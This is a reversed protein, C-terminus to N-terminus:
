GIAPCPNFRPKLSAAKEIEGPHANRVDPWRQWDRGAIVAHAEDWRRRGDERGAELMGEIDLDGRRCADVREGAKTLLHDSWRGGVRWFDWKANPNTLEGIRGKHVEDYGLRRAAFVEISGQYKPDDRQPRAAKALGTAAIEADSMLVKKRYGRGDGWDIYRYAIGDVTGCDGLSMGLRAAEGPTPERFFLDDREPWFTGYANIWGEQEETEWARVAEDHRDVFIVHEDEIGTCEYEHYPQLAGRLAEGSDDETIVLCTFHSM